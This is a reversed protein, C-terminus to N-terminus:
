ARFDLARGFEWQSCWQVGLQDCVKPIKKNHRIHNGLGEMTVVVRNDKDALAYTILFPDAGVNELENENLDPAYTGIVQRFLSVDVAERLELTSRHHRVWAALEDTGKDLEAVVEAPIKVTGQNACSILWEWYQDVREFEYYLNKACILVNADLLYVTM